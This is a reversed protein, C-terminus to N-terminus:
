CELHLQRRHTEEGIQETQLNKETQLNLWSKKKGGGMLESPRAPLAMGMRGRGLGPSGLCSSGGAGRTSPLRGKGDWCTESLLVRGFVSPTIFVFQVAALGPSRAM